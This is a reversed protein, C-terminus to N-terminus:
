GDKTEENDITSLQNCVESRSFVFEYKNNGVAINQLEEIQLDDADEICPISDTSEERDTLKRHILSYKENKIM